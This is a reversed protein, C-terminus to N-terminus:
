ARVLLPVGTERVYYTEPLFVARCHPCTEHGTRPRPSKHIKHDSEARDELAVEAACKTCRCCTYTFM